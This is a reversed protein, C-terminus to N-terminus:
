QSGDGILETSLKPWPEDHGLQPLSDLGVLTGVVASGCRRLPNALPGTLAAPCGSDEAAACARPNFPLTAVLAMGYRQQLSRGVESLHFEGARNVVALSPRTRVQAALPGALTRDLLDTGVKTPVVVWTVVQCALACEQASSCDLAGVDVVVVDHTQRLGELVTRLLGGSVIEGVGPAARGALVDIDFASQLHGAILTDDVPHLAAEHALYMLSRDEALDLQVAVAGLHPDADVLAVRLGAARLAVALNISLFTRGPAGTAGTIGIARGRTGVGLSTGGGGDIPHTPSDRVFPLPLRM